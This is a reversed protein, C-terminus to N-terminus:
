RLLARLRSEFESPKPAPEPYLVALIERALTAAAPADQKAAAETWRCFDRAATELWARGSGLSPLFALCERALALLAGTDARAILVDACHDFSSFVDRQFRREAPQWAALRKRLDLARRYPAAAEDWEARDEHIAGIRNLTRGLSWHWLSIGGVDSTHPILKEQCKRFWELSAEPHDRDYLAYGAKEAADAWAVHDALPSDPTLKEWAAAEATTLADPSVPSAASASAAAQFAAQQARAAAAEATRGLTDLADALGKWHRATDRQSEQNQPSQAALSSAIEAGRQLHPIAEATRGADALLGGVYQQCHSIRGRLFHDNPRRASLNEFLALAERALSVATDQDGSENCIGARLTLSDGQQFRINFDEPDKSALEELTRQQLAACRAAEAPNGHRSYHAALDGQAGSVTLAARRDGPSLAAMTEATSLIERLLPERPVQPKWRQHLEYLQRLGQALEGLWKTQDPGSAAFRRRIEAAADFAQVADDTQGKVRHVIGKAELWTARIRQFAPDNEDGGAHALYAGTKNVVGEMLDLRSVETLRGRLENIMFDVLAEAERRANQAAAAHTAARQSQRWAMFAGGAALLALVSVAIAVRNRRRLLKWVNAERSAARTLAERFAAASPFRKDPERALARAIVDDFRWDGSHVSPPEFAGRPLTGTLLEYAIVGLSYLDSRADAARGEIQEPAAYELTGLTSGTRTLRTTPDREAPAALGFDAVKVTGDPALLLNSPKVDRHVVGQAQAHELAAAAESLLRVCEAAPIRGAKMRQALDGGEVFEMLYFPLGDTTVGSDFVAAIHPHALRAMTAAERRFREAFAADAALEPALVKVAVTRDLKPQRARYVSGMGGRAVFRVDELGDALPEVADDVLASGLLGALDLGTLEPPLPTSTM